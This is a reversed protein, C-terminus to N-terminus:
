FQHGTGPGQPSPSRRRAEKSTQYMEWADAQIELSLPRLTELFRLDEEDMGYRAQGAMLSQMYRLRDPLTDNIMPQPATGWPAGTANPEAARGQAPAQQPPMPVVQMMYASGRVPTSGPVLQEIGPQQQMHRLSQERWDMAGSREGTMLARLTAEGPTPSEQAAMLNSATRMGGGLPNFMQVMDRAAQNLRNAEMVLMSGGPGEPRTAMQAQATLGAHVDAAVQILPGGTFTLSNYFQWKDFNWGTTHKAIKLGATVASMMIWFKAIDEGKGFRTSEKAYQYFQQSFSGLQMGVKGTLTRAIESSEAVGYRFQTADAMQRGIFAAAKEDAGSAIFDKFKKAVAPEFTRAASEGMLLDVDGNVGASRYKGIARAARQYGAEGVFLRMREGQKTYIVLPDMWTGQIHRLKDPTADHLWGAVAQAVKYRRSPPPQEVLSGVSGAQEPDPVYVLPDDFAGPQAIRPKGLHVWGHRIGREWIETKLESSANAYMSISEFLDQGVRPVALLLQISDRAWVDPRLGLLARHTLTLGGNFTSRIQAKTIGPIFFNFFSHFGDLMVDTGPTYGHRVLKMWNDMIDAVPALVSAEDDPLKLSRIFRIHEEALKWDAKVFHNFGHSRVFINGLHQANLERLDIHAGQLHELVAGNVENPVLGEYHKGQPLGAFQRARIHSLMQRVEATANRQTTVGLDALVEPFFRSMEDLAAIQVDGMGKARARAARAVDDELAFLETVLGSRLDKVDFNDTLAAWRDLHPNSWNHNKDRAVSIADWHQFPRIEPFGMEMLRREMTTTRARMPQWRAMGYDWAQQVLRERGQARADAIRARLDLALAPDDTEIAQALDEANNALAQDYKANDLHPENHAARPLQTAVEAPVESPPTIDPMPRHIRKLWEEAALLDDFRISTPAGSSLGDTIADVIKWGGAGDPIALFGKTEALEEVRAIPTPPNAVAMSRAVATAHAELASEVPALDRFSQVYRENFYQKIREREGASIGPFSDDLFDDAWKALNQTKLAGMREPTMPISVARQAALVQEDAHRSFAEWVEPVKWVGSSIPSPSIDDVHATFETQGFIPRARVVGESVDLIRVTAGDFTHGIQGSFMGFQEYQSVMEDTIPSDSTIADLRDGRRAFRLHPVKQLFAMFGQPDPVGAVVNVGGPNDITAAVAVTAENPQVARAADPLSSSETLISQKNMQVAMSEALEKEQALDLVTTPTFGPVQARRLDVSVEMGATGHQRARTIEALFWQAQEREAADTSHQAMWELTGLGQPLPEPGLQPAFPIDTTGQMAERAAARAAHVERGLSTLQGIREGWPGDFASAVRSRLAALQPGYRQLAARGIPDLPGLAGGIGIAMLPHESGGELMAASTAGQAAARVLPSTIKGGFPILKGAAGALNWAGMAPYWLAAIQGGVEATTAGWQLRHPVTARVAEEAYNLWTDAKQLAEIRAFNDGVFPLRKLGGTIAQGMGLVFLGALDFGAAMTQEPRNERRLTDLLTILEDRPMQAAFEESIGWALAQGLLETDPTGQHTILGQQAASIQEAQQSVQSIPQVRPPQMSAILAQLNREHEQQQALWNARIAGPRGAGPGGFPTQQFGEWYPTTM